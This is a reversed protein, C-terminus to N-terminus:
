ARRAPSGLYRGSPEVITKTIFACPGVQTFPAIDIQDVTTSRIGLLCYEGVTVAGAVMAGPNTVTGHGIRARHSVLTYPAILCDKGVVSQYAVICFPGVFTGPNVVATPDIIASSHVFSARALNYATIKNAIEQRRVPETVYTILFEDAPDFKDALFDDPHIKNIQVKLESEMMNKVDNTLVADPRGILTIM